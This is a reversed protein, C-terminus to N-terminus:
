GNCFISRCGQAKTRAAPLPVATLTVNDLIIGLHDAGDHDFVSDFDDEFLSAASTMQFMALMSIGILGRTSTKM